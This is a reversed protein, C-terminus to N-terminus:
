SLGLWDLGFRLQADNFKLKNLEPNLKFKLRAQSTSLQAWKWNSNLKFELKLELKLGVKLKVMLEM